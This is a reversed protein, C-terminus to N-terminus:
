AVANEVKIQSILTKSWEAMVAPDVWHQKYFLILNFFWFCLCVLLYVFLCVFVNNFIIEKQEGTEDVWEEASCYALDIDLFFVNHHCIGM